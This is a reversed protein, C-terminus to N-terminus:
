EYGQSNPFDPIPNKGWDLPYIGREVFQHFTSFKWSEPSQCLGHKVPNYHLYDCHNAFDDEDRITHEWFRSQWLNSEKRKQRSKTLPLDLNLQQSYNQTVFKKIELIRYSYNSDGEPLTLIFHVHDPLLVIADLSFPRRLRVNNLANRLGERGIDSCLWPCRKYTVITIFYTGGNVRWRRYNPM